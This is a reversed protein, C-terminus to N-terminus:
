FLNCIIPCFKQATCHFSSELVRCSNGTVTIQMGIQIVTSYFGLLGFLFVKLFPCNCFLQSVLLGLLASHWSLGWQSHLWCLGCHFADEPPPSVFAIRSRLSSVFLDWFFEFSWRSVERVPLFFLEFSIFANYYFRAMLLWLIVTHAMWYFKVFFYFFFINTMILIFIFSYFCFVVFIIFLVLSSILVAIDIHRM